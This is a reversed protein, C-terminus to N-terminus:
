DLHESLEGLNKVCLDALDRFKFMGTPDVYIVFVGAARGAQLDYIYDGIMVSDGVDAGWKELLLHIGEPDPKVRARDRDIIHLPEFFEGLGAKELTLLALEYRNRTLIGINRGHSRLRGLFDHAGESAKAHEVYNREMAHLREILPRSLEEPMARLHELMGGSEPLNLEKRMASFDHVAVTLTGDMDFVWHKKQRIERMWLMRRRPAYGDLKGEVFCWFPFKRRPM